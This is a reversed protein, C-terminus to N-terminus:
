TLSTLQVARARPASILRAIDSSGCEPCKEDKADRDRIPLLLDFREGCGKCRFEFFPMDNCIEM